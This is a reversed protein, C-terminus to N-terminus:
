KKHLITLGNNNTYHKMIYWKPNNKVFEEIAKWMGGGNDHGTYKCIETDHMVIYKNCFPGHIYLEKSLFEYNHITDIFLLDCQMPELKLSSEKKFNFNISYEKCIRELDNFRSEAGLNSPHTIDVCVISKNTKLDKLGYVFAWTSVITRVGLELISSCESALEALTDIHEQIDGKKNKSENYYEYIDM